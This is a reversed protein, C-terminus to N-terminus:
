GGSVPPFVALEDNNQIIEAGNAYTQNVAFLLSKGFRERLEPHNELITEFATQATSNEPLELKKESAGVIEKAAGFFLIKSIM